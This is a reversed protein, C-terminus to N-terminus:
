RRGGQPSPPEPARRWHTPIWEPFTDTDRADLYYWKPEPEHQIFGFGSKDGRMRVDTFRCSQSASDPSICWCDFATGDRPATEIPTWELRAVKAQLADIRNCARSYAAQSQDREKQLATVTDDHHYKTQLDAQKGLLGLNVENSAGASYWGSVGDPWVWVVKPADSM